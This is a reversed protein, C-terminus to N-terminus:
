VIQAAAACMLVVDGHTMRTPALLWRIVARRGQPPLGNSPPKNGCRILLTLGRVFVYTALSPHRVHSRCACMTLEACHRTHGATLPQRLAQPVSSQPPSSPLSPTIVLPHRSQCSRKQGRSSVRHSAYDARSHPRSCAGEVQRDQLACILPPAPSACQDSAHAQSGRRTACM